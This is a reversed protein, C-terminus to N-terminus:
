FPSTAALRDLAPGLQATLLAYGRGTLHLHDPSIAPDLRGSDDLLVNGIEAYFVHEHDACSRIIANVREVARRLASNPDEERPLLGLLLIRTDPLRGRLLALNTSIGDATAEPSRGSGLDNTGILLIVAKPPPGGLSGHELRWLLHDTRDGSVGANLVGRPALQQQWIRPDWGETLSDGFFVVSHPVSKVMENIRELRGLAHRDTRPTAAPMEGGSFRGCRLRDAWGTGSWASAVLATLLAILFYRYLRLPVSVPGDLTEACMSNSVLRTFPM